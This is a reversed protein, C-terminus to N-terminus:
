SIPREGLDNTGYFVHGGVRNYQEDYFHYHYFYTPMDKDREWVWQGNMDALMEATEQYPTYVDLGSYVAVYATAMDICEDNVYKLKGSERVVWRFSWESCGFDNDEFLDPNDLTNSIDALLTISPAIDVLACYGLYIVVMGALVDGVPLPGDALPLALAAAAYAENGLAAKSETPANLYAEGCSCIHFTIGDATYNRYEHTHAKVNGSYIYCTKNGYQVEYWKNLYRNWTTGTKCLVTTEAVRAVVPSSGLPEERIPANDRVVEIMDDGHHLISTDLAYTHDATQSENSCSTQNVYASSSSEESTGPIVLRGDKLLQLLYTNQSATGEYNAIGNANAISERYSFSSDVGISKLADVISSEGSSVSPFCDAFAVPPLFTCMLAVVLAFSIVRTFLNKM